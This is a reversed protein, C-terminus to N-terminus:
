DAAPVTGTSYASGAPHEGEWITGMEDLAQVMIAEMAQYATAGDGRQIAQAVDAHLRLAQEDPHHPMLGYAHRGILVETVLDSLKLLLENGSAALVKRHFEIDLDLFSDLDGVKGATWMRAAVVVLASGAEHSARAAALRAAQPEVATRLETISRLQAERDASGLRWRIVQPDFVNWEHKPRIQTGLRRRSEVLGMSSLVRLCERIVSRSVGYESMLQDIYLVSGVPHSGDAIATGLRDLVKAHLGTVGSAASRAPAERADTSMGCIMRM